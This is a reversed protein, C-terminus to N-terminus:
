IKITIPSSDLEQLWYYLQEDTLVFFNVQFGELYFRIFDKNLGQMQDQYVLMLEESDSDKLRPAISIAFEKSKLDYDGGLTDWADLHREFAAVRKEYPSQENYEKNVTYIFM